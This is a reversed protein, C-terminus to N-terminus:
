ASYSVCSFASAIAAMIDLPVGGGPTSSGDTPGSSPQILTARTTADAHVGNFALTKALLCIWITILRSRTRPQYVAPVQCRAGPVQCGAGPVHVSSGLADVAVKTACWSPRAIGPVIGIRPAEASIPGLRSMRAAWMSSSIAEILVPISFRSRSRAFLLRSFVPCNGVNDTSIVGALHAPFPHLALPFSPTLPMSNGTVNAIVSSSTPVASVAPTSMVVSNLRFGMPM